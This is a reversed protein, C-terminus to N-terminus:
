AMAYYIDEVKRQYTSLESTMQVHRCATNDTLRLSLSQGQMKYTETAAAEDSDLEHAEVNRAGTGFPVVVKVIIWNSAIIRWDHVLTDRV